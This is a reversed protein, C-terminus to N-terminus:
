GKYIGVLKNIDEFYWQGQMWTTTELRRRQPETDNGSVTENGFGTDNGSGTDNGDLYVFLRDALDDCIM